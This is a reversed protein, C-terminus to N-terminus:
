SIFSNLAISAAILAASFGSPRRTMTSGIEADRPVAARFSWVRLWSIAIPNTM